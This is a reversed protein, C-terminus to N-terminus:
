QTDTQTEPFVLVLASIRWCRDSMRDACSSLYRPRSYTAKQCECAPLALFSSVIRGSDQSM